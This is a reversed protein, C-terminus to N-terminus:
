KPLYPNELLDHKKHIISKIYQKRQHKRDSREFSMQNSYSLSITLSRDISSHKAVIRQHSLAIHLVDRIIIGVPIKSQSLTPEIALLPCYLTRLRLSMHFISMIYDAHHYIALSKNMDREVMVAIMQIITATYRRIRQNQSILLRHGTDVFIIHSIGFEISQATAVQQKDIARASRTTAIQHHVSVIHFM